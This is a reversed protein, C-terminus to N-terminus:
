ATKLAPSLRQAISFIGFFLSSYFLDGLFTNRAFPIAQIYSETLGAATKPYIDTVAWVGFNTIIFFLAAGILSLGIPQLISKGENQGSFRGLVTYLAIAGYVFPMTAHFGIFSDTILMAIMPVLFAMKKDQFYAGSFLAMAGLPTFNALDMNGRTMARTIMALVIMAILFLFRGNLKDKM